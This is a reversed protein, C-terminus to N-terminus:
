ARCNTGHKKGEPAKCSPCPGPGVNVTGATMGPEGAGLSGRGAAPRTSAAHGPPTDYLQLGVGFLTAAKKIGDTVAGKASDENELVATGIQTRTGLGPITLRVKAQWFPSIPREGKSSTAALREYLIPGEVVEIDFAGGTAEILREIVNEGEIYDFTRRGAGERQKIDSAPFPKMLDKVLTESTM